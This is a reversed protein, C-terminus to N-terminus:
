WLITSKGNSPPLGEIFDMTIYDWVQCPIPLPQLFGAPFLTEAKNKQFVTCSTVYQQIVKHMSPWYFQQTLRKYTRLVGSHGEYPSDHFEQLLQNVFQSNPPIVVHNRYCVLGNQWKYPARPNATALKSIRVMYPHENAEKKIANWLFTQPVFLTNLSPSSTVRSLADVASNEKGPKYTIEYDYGLLKSVWKQQESTM